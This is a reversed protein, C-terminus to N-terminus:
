LDLEKIISEYDATDHYANLLTKSEDISIVYRYERGGDIQMQVSYQRFGMNGDPYSWDAYDEVFMKYVGISLFYFISRKHEGRSVDMAKAAKGSTLFRTWLDILQEKTM